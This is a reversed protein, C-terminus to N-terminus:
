GSTTAAPSTSNELVLRRFTIQNDAAQFFAADWRVLSPDIPVLLLQCRQSRLNNAPGHYREASFQRKSQAEADGQQKQSLGSEAVGLQGPKNTTDFASFLMLARCAAFFLAATVAAVGIALTGRHGNVAAELCDALLSHHRQVAVRDDRVSRNAIDLVRRLQGSADRACHARQEDSFGGNSRTRGLKGLESGM